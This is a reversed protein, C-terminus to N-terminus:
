DRLDSSAEAPVVLQADALIAAYLEPAHTLASAPAAILAVCAEGEGIGREIVIGVDAGNRRLVTTRLAAEATAGARRRYAASWVEPPASPVEFLERALAPEVRLLASPEEADPPPRTVLVQVRHGVREALADHLGPWRPWAEGTADERQEIVAFHPPVAIGVGDVELTRRSAVAQARVDETAVQVVAVPVAVAVLVALGRLGTAIMGRPAAVAVVVMGVLGAVVLGVGSGELGQASRPITLLLAVVLLVLPLALVRRTRRPLSTQPSLLIWLAATVVGMTVLSAGSWVVGSERALSAATALGAAAAGVSALLARGRGYIREILPTGMWVGYLSLLLNIPDTQIAIGTIARGWSGARWLEPCLGGLRLLGPGGGDLLLGGLYGGVLVVLLLPTVWLSGFRRVAPAVRVFGELRSAVRDAYRRLEPALEVTPPPPSAMAKRSAHVVRDDRAGALDEVRRLEAQAQEARGARSLAIGRFLAGSAASLGLRQRGDETLASEVQASEGAYALFTLRAQSVVGAAQPNHGMLEEIARLLGAADGLKGSEGYARLLGLALSPRQAAYGPPFRAEYHAIGESWRQGFLLMSVIQEHIIRLESDDDTQHALGRFYDLAGDVGRRELVALGRLIVLQRGLGSGPMLLARLGILRVALALRERAFSARVALDLIWPAVVVLAGLGVALVSGFRDDRLASVVTLLLVGALVFLYGRQGPEGRRLQGAFSVGVVVAMLLTLESLM